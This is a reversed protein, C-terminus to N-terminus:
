NTSHWLKRVKLFGRYAFESLVSIPWTQVFRGLYKFGPLTCWMQAFAQSGSLIAGDSQMVHFRAIAASKSLGPAPQDNATTLDIWNIQDSGNCNKYFKIERSCLPCSGDYFVTLKQKGNM